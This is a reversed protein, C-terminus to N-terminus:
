QLVSYNGKANNPLRLRIQSDSRKGFALGDLQRAVVAPPSPQRVHCGDQWAWAESGRRASFAMRVARADIPM